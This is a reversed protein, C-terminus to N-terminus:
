VLRNLLGRYDGDSLRDFPSQRQYFDTSHFVEIGLPRLLEGWERDLHAWQDVSAVCGAVVMYVGGGDPHGSEDFYASYMAVRRDWSFRSLWISRTIHEIRSYVREGFQNGEGKVSLTYDVM